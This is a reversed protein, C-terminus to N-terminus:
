YAVDRCSNTASNANPESVAGRQWLTHRCCHHERGGQRDRMLSRIGGPICGRGATGGSPVGRAPQCLASGQGDARRHLSARLRGRGDTPGHRDGCPEGLAIAVMELAAKPDIGSKQAFGLLEALGAVQVALLMNAVLKMVAGQGVPGALHIAAAFSQLLPTAAVVTDPAGGAFIILSGSEAQPLTGVVPAELFKAGTSVVSKALVKVWAPSVTSIEVVVADKGIGALAGREPMTWVSQSAADDTVMSLVFEAGDAADRPTSASRAGLAVLAQVPSPSRNWVTVTHGAEILRAAIRSGMAGLGLFAIKSM